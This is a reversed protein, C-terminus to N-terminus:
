IRHISSTLPLQPVIGRARGEGVDEFVLVVDEVRAALEEGFVDVVLDALILEDGAVVDVGEGEDAALGVFMDQVAHVLGEAGLVPHQRGALGLGTARPPLFPFGHIVQTLESNDLAFLFLMESTLLLDQLQGAEFM